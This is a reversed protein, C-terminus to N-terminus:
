IRFLGTGSDPLFTVKAGNTSLPLNTIGENIYALLPSTAASGTDKVIVMAVAMGNSASEWVINGCGAWGNTVTKSTLTNSAAVQAPVSIESLFEHTAFNPAYTGTVLIAKMDQTLWSIEARLFKERAKGYLGSM